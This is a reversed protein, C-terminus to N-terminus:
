RSLTARLHAACAAMWDLPWATGTRVFLEVLRRVVPKVAGHEYTRLLGTAERLEEPSLVYDMMEFITRPMGRGNRPSAARGIEYVLAWFLFRDVMGRWRRALAAHTPWRRLHEDCYQGLVLRYDNALAVITKRSASERHIRYSWLCRPIHGIAHREAVQFWVAFDTFGLPGGEDFRVGGLAARRIMTGACNLSSRGRRLTQEIYTLGSVIAPGRFTRRGICHGQEDILEWDSCVLGVAPHRQLVQVYERVTGPGYLDDDHFFGLLEGRSAEVCANHNAYLGINRPHRIVRVRADARAADHCIQPTEDDSENDSILIELPEYDQGRITELSQRLFRARNRTPVCISVLPNGM